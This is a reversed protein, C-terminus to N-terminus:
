EDALKAGQHRAVFLWCQRLVEAAPLLDDKGLSTATAWDGAATKYSRVLVVSFWTGGDNDKNAWVTGKIQGIQCVYATPDTRAAPPETKKSV